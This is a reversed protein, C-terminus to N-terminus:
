CRRARTTVRYTTWKATGPRHGSYSILYKGVRGAKVRWFRWRSAPALGHRYFFRRHRPGSIAIRYARSGGSFRQFWVGVRFKRGVCVSRSPQNVLVVGPSASATRTATSVLGASAGPHAAAASAPLCQVVAVIGAGAVAAAIVQRGTRVGARGEM